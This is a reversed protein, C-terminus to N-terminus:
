DAMTEVFLHGAENGEPDASPIVCTGDTFIIVFGPSGHDQEWGFMEYENKTLQRVKEITKGVLAGYEKTIYTDNSTTM